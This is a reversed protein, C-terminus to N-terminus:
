AGGGCTYRGSPGPNMLMIVNRDRIVIPGFFHGGPKECKPGPMRPGAVEKGIRSCGGWVRFGLGRCQVLESELESLRGTRM